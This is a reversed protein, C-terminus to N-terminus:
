KVNPSLFNLNIITDSSNEDAIADLFCNEFHKDKRAVILYDRPEAKLYVREQWVLPEDKVFQFIDLHKEYNEPLDAAMQLAAYM